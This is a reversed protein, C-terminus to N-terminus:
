KKCEGYLHYLLKPMRQGIESLMSAELDMWAIAFPLIENEKHSLLLRSQTHTHTHTHTYVCM